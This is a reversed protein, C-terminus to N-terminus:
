MRMERFVVVVDGIAALFEAARGRSIRFLQAPDPAVDPVRVAHLEVVGADREERAGAGTDRM